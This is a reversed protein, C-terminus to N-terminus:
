LPRVPAPWDPRGPPAARYPRVPGDARRRPLRLHHRLSREVYQDRAAAEATEAEGLTEELVAVGARHELAVGAEAALPAVVQVHVAVAPLRQAAAQRVIEELQVCVDRM